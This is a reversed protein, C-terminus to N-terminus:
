LLMKVAPILNDFLFGFEVVRHALHHLADAALEACVSPRLAPNHVAQRAIVALLHGSFELLPEGRPQAVACTDPARIQCNAVHFNHVAQRVIATLLYGRLEM